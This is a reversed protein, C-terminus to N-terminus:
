CDFVWFLLNQILSFSLPCRTSSMFPKIEKCNKPSNEKKNRFSPLMFVFSHFIYSKMIGIEGQVCLFWEHSEGGLLIFNGEPEQQKRVTTTLWVANSNELSVYKQLYKIRKSYVRADSETARDINRLIIANSILYNDSQQTSKTRLLQCLELPTSKSHRTTMEMNKILNKETWHITSTWIKHYALRFMNYSMGRLTIHDSQFTKLFTKM